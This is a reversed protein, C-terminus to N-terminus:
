SWWLDAGSGLKFPPQCAWDYAEGVDFDMDLETTGYCRYDWFNSMTAPAVLWTLRRHTRDWHCSTQRAILRLWIMATPRKFM